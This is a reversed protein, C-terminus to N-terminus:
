SAFSAAPRATFHLVESIKERKKRKSSNPKRNNALARSELQPYRTMPRLALLSLALAISISLAIQSWLLSLAVVIEITILSMPRAVISEDSRRLSSPLCHPLSHSWTSHSIFDSSTFLFVRLKWRKWNIARSVRRFRQSIANTKRNPTNIEQVRSVWLLWVPQQSLSSISFFLAMSSHFIHIFLKKENMKHKECINRADFSNLLASISLSIAYFSSSNFSSFFYGLLCFEKWPPSECAHSLYTFQQENIEKYMTQENNHLQWMAICRAYILTVTPATVM